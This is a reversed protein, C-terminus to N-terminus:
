IHGDSLFNFDEVSLRFRCVPVSLVGLEWVIFTLLAVCYIHRVASLIWVRIRLFRFYYLDVGALFYSPLRPGSTVGSDIPKM